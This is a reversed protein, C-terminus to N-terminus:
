VAPRRVDLLPTDDASVFPRCRYIEACQCCLGHAPQWTPFDRGIREIM